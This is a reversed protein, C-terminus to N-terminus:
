MIDFFAYRISPLPCLMAYRINKVGSMSPATHFAFGISSEFWTENLEGFEGLDRIGCNGPLGPGISRNTM